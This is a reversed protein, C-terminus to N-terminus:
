GRKARSTGVDQPVGMIRQRLAVFQVCAVAKTFLDAHQDASAVHRPVFYLRAVMDRLFYADRLIHKTKKFSTPDFAM